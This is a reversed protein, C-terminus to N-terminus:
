DQRVESLKILQQTFGADKARADRPHQDLGRLQAGEFGSSVNWVSAEM